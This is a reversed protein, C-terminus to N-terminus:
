QDKAKWILNRVTKRSTILFSSKIHLIQLKIAKYEAMSCTFIAAIEEATACLGKWSSEDINWRQIMSTWEVSCPQSWHSFVNFVHISCQSFMLSDDINVINSTSNICWQNLQHCCYYIMLTLLPNEVPTTNSLCIKALQPVSSTNLSRM